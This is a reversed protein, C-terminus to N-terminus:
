SICPGDLHLVTGPGIGLSALAGARVELVMGYPRGPGKSPCLTEAPPCPALTLASIYAGTTDFFALTRPRVRAASPRGSVGPTSPSPFVLVLGDYGGLRPFHTLAAARQSPTHALLACGARGSLLSGPSGGGVTFATEDFAPDGPARLVTGPPVLRPRAAHSSGVQLFAVIGVVLVVWAAWQTLALARNDVARESTM